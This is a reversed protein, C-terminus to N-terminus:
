ISGLNATPFQQTGTARVAVILVLRRRIYGRRENTTTEM